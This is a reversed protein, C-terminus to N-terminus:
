KLFSLGTPRIKPEPKEQDSAVSAAASTYLPTLVLVTSSRSFYYSFRGYYIKQDISVDRPSVTQHLYM